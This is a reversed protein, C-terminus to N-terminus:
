QRIVQKLRNDIWRCYEYFKNDAIISNAFAADLDDNVKDLERQITKKEFLIKHRLERMEKSEQSLQKSLTAFQRGIRRKDLKYYKKSEDRAVMSKTNLRASSELLRDQIVHYTDYLFESIAKYFEADELLAEYAREARGKDGLLQQYKGFLAGDTKAIIKLNESELDNM